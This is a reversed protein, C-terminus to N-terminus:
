ERESRAADENFTARRKREDALNRQVTAKLKNDLIFPLMRAINRADDIGRHHAGELSLGCLELARRMGPRPKGTQHRKSFVDKLNAHHLDALPSPIGLRRGDKELQHRDYNGWSGWGLRERHPEIWAAILESVEEFPLGTDVQSQTISTLQTCFDSLV